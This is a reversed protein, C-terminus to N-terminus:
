RKVNKDTKSAAETADRKYDGMMGQHAKADFGNMNIEHVTLTEGNVKIRFAFPYIGKIRAREDGGSTVVIERVYGFHVGEESVEYAPASLKTVLDGPGVASFLIRNKEIAITCSEGQDLSHKWTGVAKAAISKAEEDAIATSVALTLAVALFNRSM